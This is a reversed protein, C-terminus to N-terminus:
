GSASFRATTTFPWCATPAWTPLPRISFIKSWRKPRRRFSRSDRRASTRSWRAPRCGPRSARRRRGSWDDLSEVGALRFRGGRPGLRGCAPRPSSLSGSEAGRRLISGLELTEGEPWDVPGAQFTFVAPLRDKRPQGAWQVTFRSTDPLMMRDSTEGEALALQGEIGSRFTWIAGGLLILLGVHTLLFGIQRGKWPFRVVASAVINGALLGLLAIFWRTHYVCWRAYEHGHATELLTAAALAAALAALLFIALKLSALGRFATAM